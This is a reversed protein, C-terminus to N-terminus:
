AVARRGHTDVASRMGRTMPHYFQKAEEFDRAPKEPDDALDPFIDILTRGLTIARAAQSRIGKPKEQCTPWVRRFQHRTIGGCARLQQLLGRSDKDPAKEKGTTLLLRFRLFTACALEAAQAAERFYRERNLNEAVTLLILHVDQLRGRQLTALYAQRNRARKAEKTDAENHKCIM